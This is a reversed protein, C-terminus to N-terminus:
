STRFSRKQGKGGGATGGSRQGRLLHARLRHRGIGPDHDDARTRGARRQDVPQHPAEIARLDRQDIRPDFVQIM